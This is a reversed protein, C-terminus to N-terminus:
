LTLDFKYILERVNENLNIMDELKDQPTLELEIPKLESLVSFVFNFAQIDSRFDMVM